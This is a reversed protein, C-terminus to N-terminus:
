YHQENEQWHNVSHKNVNEVQSYEPSQNGEREETVVVLCDQQQKKKKDKHVEAYVPSSCREQPEVYPSPDEQEKAMVVTKNGVEHGGVEDYGPSFWENDISSQVSNEIRLNGHKATNVEAYGPPEHSYDIAKDQNYSAFQYMDGTNSEKATEASQSQEENESTRSQTNSLIPPEEKNACVDYDALSTQVYHPNSVEEQALRYKSHHSSSATHILFYLRLGHM